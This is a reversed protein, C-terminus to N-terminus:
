LSALLKHRFSIRDHLVFSSLIGFSAYDSLKNESQFQQKTNQFQVTICEHRRVWIPELIMENINRDFITNDGESKYFRMDHSSMKRVVRVFGHM